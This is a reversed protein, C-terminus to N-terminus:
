EAQIGLDKIIKGYVEFDTANTRALVEPLGGVPSSGQSAMFDIVDTMKLIENIHENLTRVIDAPMDKPGFVGYWSTLDVGKFGVDSMSPVDPALKTRERSTVVLPVLKGSAMHPKITSLSGYAFPIHGGLVDAVAPAVGKYPVHLFDVGTAKNIAEGVIHLISGTGASGYPLKKGKAAAAQQFTKFGTSSNTVLFMPTKGVEIVPVLDSLPHYSSATGGKSVLPAFSFSGPVFLLTYGDPPAKAVFNTGIIGAAGLRNQVIVPQRLRASLKEALLRAILDTGAGAAFPVVVTIPKVPYTQALAWQPTCAAASTLTLLTRRSIGNM